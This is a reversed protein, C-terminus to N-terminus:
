LLVYYTIYIYICINVIITITIFLCKVVEALQCGVENPELHKRRLSKTFDSLKKCFFGVKSSAFECFVGACICRIFWEKKHSAMTKRIEKM